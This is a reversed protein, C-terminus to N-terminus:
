GFIYGLGNQTVIFAYVIGHPFRPVFINAVETIKSFFSILPDGQVYHTWCTVFFWAIKSRM